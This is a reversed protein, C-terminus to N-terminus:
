NSPGWYRDLLFAIVYPRHGNFNSNSNQGFTESELNALLMTLSINLLVVSFLRLHRHCKPEIQEQSHPTATHAAASWKWVHHQLSPLSCARMCFFLIPLQLAEHRLVLVCSHSTSLELTPPWGQSFPAGKEVRGEVFSPSLFRYQVM